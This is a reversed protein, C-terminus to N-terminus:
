SVHRGSCQGRVHSSSSLVVQEEPSAPGEDGHQLLLGEEVGLALERVLTQGPLTQGGLFRM